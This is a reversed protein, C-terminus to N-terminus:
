ETIHIEVSEGRQLKEWIDDEQNNIDAKQQQCFSVFAIIVIIACLIIFSIKLSGDDKPILTGCKPCKTGKTSVMHGCNVCKILAM